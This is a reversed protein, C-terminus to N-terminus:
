RSGPPSRSAAGTARARSSSPPTSAAQAECAAMVGPRVAWTVLAEFGRGQADPASGLEESAQQVRNVWFTPYGSAKAGAADWGGFAAFGISERPLGFADLAMQYARPHPKHAQVRDTSLPPEMLDTIGASRSAAELTRATFNSLFALRVGAERLALLAPRVDPWADLSLFSQMLPDRQAAPLDLELQRAAFALAEESVQWFDAYRGMLTRLWSYKFQHVRWLSLLAAGRAPFLREALESVPRLDFVALGDIARAKLAPGSSARALGPAVVFAAAIGAGLGLKLADRRCTCAAIHRSM